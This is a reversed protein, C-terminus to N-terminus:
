VIKEYYIYLNVNNSLSGVLERNLSKYNLLIDFHIKNCLKQM